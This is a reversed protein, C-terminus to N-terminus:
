NPQQVSLYLQIRKLQAPSIRDIKELESLTSIGERLRVFEWIEKALDFTVGPITALDSATAKNIDWQQITAPTKIEFRQKLREIVVPSLGYVDELQITHTFGNISKRYAVIRDGLVPGIGSIRQLESSTAVNLDLKEDFIYREQLKQSYPTQSPKPNRVWDPFKFFPSISDLWAQSVHTVKKFDAISNIWKGQARYARLADFQETSLNM